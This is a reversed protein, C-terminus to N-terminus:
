QAQALVEALACRWYLPKLGLALRSPGCELLSYSPRQAPTPYEATTIPEVVAARSLLGQAVGLEGIAVGYLLTLLAVAMAPGIAAQDDLNQLMLVLGVFTGAMGSAVALDALRHFVMAKRTKAASSTANGPILAERLSSLPFSVVAGAVVVGMTFVLSMPDLFAGLASHMLAATGVVGSMMALGLVMGGM